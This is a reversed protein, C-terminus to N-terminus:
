KNRGRIGEDFLHTLINDWPHYGLLTQSFDSLMQPNLLLSSHIGGVWLHTLVGELLTADWIIRTIGFSYASEFPEFVEVM